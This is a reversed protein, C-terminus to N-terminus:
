LGGNIAKAAVHGVADSDLLYYLQALCNFIGALALILFVVLVFAEALMQSAGRIPPKWFRGESEGIAGPEIAKEKQTAAASREHGPRFLLDTPALFKIIASM